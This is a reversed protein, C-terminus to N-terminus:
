RGRQAASGATSSSGSRCSASRRRSEARRPRVRRPHHGRRRARGGRGGRAEDGTRRGPARRRGPGAAGRGAAAPDRRGPRRRPGLGPPVRIRHRCRRGPWPGAWAPSPSRLSSPSRRQSRSARSVGRRRRAAGTGTSPAPASPHPAALSALAAYSAVLGGAGLRVEVSAWGPGRVGNPSGQGRLRAPGLRPRRASGAASRAGPRPRRDADGAVDGAGGRAHALLNAVLSVLSAEGFHFAILPATAATAAVTIAAGEALARGLAGAHGLQGLVWGRLPAAFALIGLVAAFSLQWGVDAGLGPDVALTVTAAVALAYLRSLAGAPSRPSSALASGDGGARLISPGAGALPVYVAILALVWVLRERLGLGLAGLVPMALLALLAVNQGRSPSCTASARAASTKRPAADM